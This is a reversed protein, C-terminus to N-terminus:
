TRPWVWMAALVTACGAYFGFQKFNYANTLGGIVSFNDTVGYIGELNAGFTGFAGKASLDTGLALRLQTIGQTMTLPRLLESVPYTKMTFLGGATVPPQGEEPGDDGDGDGKDEGGKEDPDDGSDDGGDDDGGKAFAAHTHGHWGVYGVSLTLMLALRLGRSLKPLM